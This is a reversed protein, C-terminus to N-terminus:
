TYLSDAFIPGRKIIVITNDIIDLMNQPALADAEFCELACKVEHLLKELSRVSRAFVGPHLSSEIEVEDITSDSKDMWLRIATIVSEDINLIPEKLDLRTQYQCVRKIGDYVTDVTEFDNTDTTPLFAAMTTALHTETEGTPLLQGDLMLEMLLVPNKTSNLMLCAKGKKLVLDEGDVYGLSKLTMLQGVIGYTNLLTTDSVQKELANLRQMDRQYQMYANVDPMGSMGSMCTDLSKTKLVDDAYDQSCEFMGRVRFGRKDSLWVWKEVLTPRHHGNLMIETDSVVIGMVFEGRQSAIAKFGSASRMTKNSPTKLALLKEVLDHQEKDEQSLQSLRQRLENLEVLMHGNCYDDYSLRITSTIDRDSCSLIRLIMSYDLRLSSTLPASTNQAYRQLTAADPLDKAAIIVHGHIDLGRRGARGAMQTYEAAELFRMSSGDFKKLSTFVSTRNPANIGMAFTETCVLVTILQKCFLIEVIERVFPLLGSHHVCVGMDILAKITQLQSIDYTSIGLKDLSDQWFRHALHSRENIFLRSMAVRQALGDCETKSFCFLIAPVKDPVLHRFLQSLDQTLESCVSTKVPPRKDPNQNARQSGTPCLAKWAAMADSKVNAADKIQLKTLRVSAKQAAYKELPVLVDKVLVVHNLPVPRILKTVVRMETGRVYSIWSAFTKANPATASLCVLKIHKPLLMIVLEWVSGRDGNSFYHIEDLIVFQVDSLRCIDPSSTTQLLIETTMVVCAAEPRICVDGTLIGVDTGTQKLEHYKQNSLAKIPSTYLARTGNKRALDIAHEAVRSKGSSTPAAVFVSMGADLAAYADLQFQDHTM